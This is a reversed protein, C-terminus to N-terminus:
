DTPNLIEILFKRVDQQRGRNLRVVGWQVGGILLWVFIFLLSPPAPIRATLPAILGGFLWGLFHWLQPAFYGIIQTGSTHWVLRGYFTPDEFGKTFSKPTITFSGETIHGDFLKDSTPVGVDSQRKIEDTLLKHCKDISLPSIFDIDLKNLAILRAITLM